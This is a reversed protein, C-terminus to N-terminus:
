LFFFFFFFFFLFFFPAPPAREVREGWNGRSLQSMCLVSCCLANMFKGSSLFWGGEEGGGGWFLAVRVCHSYANMAMRRGGYEIEDERNSRAIM